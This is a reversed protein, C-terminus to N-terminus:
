QFKYRILVIGKGAGAGDTGAGGGSNTVGAAPGNPNPISAGGSAGNGYGGGGIGGDGGTKPASFSYGPGGGGGSFYGAGPGPVTYFPQPAAGFISTVPSGAGGPSGNRFDSPNLDGNSGSGGAGGGGGQSYVAGSNGGPNGQSPSVPPTNGAGGPTGANPNDFSGGGGGSGGDGGESSAPIIPGGRYGFGRGGGASTITSFSSPSGSTGYSAGAGAGVTIPYTTSTITLGGPVALPPAPPSVAGLRFGGAGGGPGAGGGAVVLYDVNAPGGTPVTPSNGIQSVVFCGDGTFSHIKFDGSTTITGGTASTFAPGQLDAVNNEEAFLWGKTVDAYVLILSARNTGILSNNAVGQINHGNRAITLKNTAFTGAYDIIGITDGRTASAPLTFTHAASTTDIFYGRGASGTTGTSGDATIVSQWDVDVNLSFSDGLARSTGRVTITSNSLKNNAITSNVLQDSTVSTNPLTITKSSLDLTSALQTGTLSGALEANQITGDEIKSADVAGTGIANKPLKTLAM